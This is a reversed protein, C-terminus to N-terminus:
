SGHRSKKLILVDTYVSDYIYDRLYYLLKFLLINIWLILYWKFRYWCWHIRQWLNTWFLIYMRRIMNYNHCLHCRRNEDTKKDLSTCSIQLLHVFICRISIHYKLFKFFLFFRLIISIHAVQLSQIHLKNM